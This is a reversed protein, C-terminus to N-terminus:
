ITKQSYTNKSRLIYISFFSIISAVLNGIAWAIAVWSLGKDVWMYTLICITSAYAINTIILARMHHNIRLLVTGLNYGAVVPAAIALIIIVNGGGTSYSKGFFHLVSPGFVALIIGAPVMLSILITVSRKLLDKLENGDYSGEAFLSQCVSGSITYLLNIIMFALFYYGAASAGLHNIIIIPLVYTPLLNVLNAIYNTFSYNFFKKLVNKNITLHPRYNFKKVLFFLGVMMGVSSALGSSAFVGYAGFGVLLAPLILKSISVVFGNTILSYQTSRYAVFISDILSNATALVVLVIFLLSYGINAHIIDLSPTIYPILITYFLAIVSATAIVVISGSNIDENRTTSNPLFRVFTSNFGLLSILSILSMASILTTGLGIQEPTFLRTCIMWFVFGFLGMVVTTSM